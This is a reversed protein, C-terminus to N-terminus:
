KHKKLPCSKLRHFVSYYGMNTQDQMATNLWLGDWVVVVLVSAQQLRVQV